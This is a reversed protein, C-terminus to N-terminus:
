YQQIIIFFLIEFDVCDLFYLLDLIVQTRNHLINKITPNIKREFTSACISIDSLCIMTLNDLACKLILVLLKDFILCYNVAYLHSYKYMWTSTCELSINKLLFNQMRIEIVVIHPHPKTRSHKYEEIETHQVNFHYLM